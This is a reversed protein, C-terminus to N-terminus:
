VLNNQKLRLGNRGIYQVLMEASWSFAFPLPSESSPGFFPQPGLCKLCRYFYGYGSFTWRIRTKPYPFFFQISFSYFSSLQGSLTPFFLPHYSLALAFYPKVMATCNSNGYGITTVSFPIYFAPLSVLQPFWSLPAPETIVHLVVAIREYDVSQISLLVQYVV